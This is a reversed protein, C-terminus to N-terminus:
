YLPRKVGVLGREEEEDKTDKNSYSFQIMKVSGTVTADSSNATEVIDHIIFSVKVSDTDM